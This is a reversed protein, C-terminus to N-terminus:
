IAFVLSFTKKSDDHCAHKPSPFFIESHNNYKNGKRIEIHSYGKRSSYFISRYIIYAGVHPGSLM